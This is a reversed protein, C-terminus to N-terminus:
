TQQEYDLIIKKVATVSKKRIRLILIDEIITNIYLTSIYKFFYILHLM